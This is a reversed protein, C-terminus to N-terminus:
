PDFEQPPPMQPNSTVQPDVQPPMQNPQPYPNVPEGYGSNNQNLPANQPSIYKPSPGYENSNVESDISCYYIVIIQGVIPILILLVYLGTKGIDHFRRVALSINPILVSLNYISIIGNFIPVAVVPLGM